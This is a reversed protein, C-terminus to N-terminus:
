GARLEEVCAALREDDDPDEPGVIAPLVIGDAVQGFRQRLLGPLQDYRGSILLQDLVDDDLVMPLDSFRRAKVLARLRDPLDLLGRRELAPAYSPTSYLFALMGRQRERERDVAGDDAGTAIAASAIISPRDARQVAAAGRQLAPRVVGTLFAPDSNTSHTVVGRALEGALECMGPNVAGLWIPPVPVASPGPNFYPQMRTLRYTPGRYDLPEGTRFVTFLAHLAGLYDKMRARPDSWPMGYRGQINQKIQSGLGLEFRGESMTSLDWAAYAVLTPSRVFALTVATRVTMRTSHELALLAVALSDHITEAVHLGDFGLREVRRAYGGVGSLPLQPDLAAYVKM